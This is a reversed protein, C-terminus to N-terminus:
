KIKSIDKLNPGLHGTCLFSNCYLFNFAANFLYIFLNKIDTLMWDAMVLMAQVSAKIFKPSKVKKKMVFVFLLIALDLFITETHM